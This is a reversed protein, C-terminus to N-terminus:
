RNNGTSNEYEEVILSWKAEPRTPPVITKVKYEIGDFIVSDGVRIYKEQENHIIITGYSTEFKEGTLATM